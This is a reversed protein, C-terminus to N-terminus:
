RYVELVEELRSIITDAETGAATGALLFTKANLRRGIEIDTERDGVMVIQSFRGAAFERVKRAKYSVANGGRQQLIGPIGIFHDICDAIGIMDIFEELRHPTTSSVVVNCDGKSKIEDLVSRVNERPKIFSPAIKRSLSVSLGVMENIQEESASPCFCRYFEGWPRGFIRLVEEMGVPGASFDGLVRNVIIHCAEEAGTCLTGHYDWVFLRRM